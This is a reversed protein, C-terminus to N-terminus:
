GQLVRFTKTDCKEGRKCNNADWTAKIGTRSIYRENVTWLLKCQAAARRQTCLFHCLCRNSQVRQCARDWQAM